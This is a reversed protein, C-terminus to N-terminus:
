KAVLVKRNINCDKGLLQLFYVGGPLKSVNMPLSSLGMTPTQEVIHGTVDYLVIAEAQAPIGDVHLTSNVPNPYINLMADSNVDAIATPMLSCANVVNINASDEYYYLPRPDPSLATVCFSDLMLGDAHWVFLGYAPLSDGWINFEPRTTAEESLNGTSMTGGGPVTVAVNKFHINQVPYGPLGTVSCPISTSSQAVVDNIWVNRLYKPAPPPITTDYQFDRECLRIFIACQSPTNVRIHEFYISDASGGDAIAIYMANYPQIPLTFTSPIVTINEFRINVLPGFSENGVKVAREYSAMTCNRILVDRCIDTSHTKVPICDDNTDFKSNEVLVDTCGDIDIGDNSGWCQNYVYIANIYIHQCGMIH